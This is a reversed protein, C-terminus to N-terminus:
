FVSHTKLFLKDSITVWNIEKIILFLYGLNGFTELVLHYFIAYYRFISYYYTEPKLEIQSVGSATHFLIEMLHIIYINM